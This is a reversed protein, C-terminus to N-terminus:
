WPVHHPTRGCALMSTRLGMHIAPIHADHVRVVDHAPHGRRLDCRRWPVQTRVGSAAQGQLVGLVQALRQLGRTM